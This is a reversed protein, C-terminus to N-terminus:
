HPPPSPVLIWCRISITQRPIAGDTAEVSFAWTGYQTPTGQVSGSASLSLGPPLSGSVLSFSYSPLGGTVDITESYPSGVFGYPLSLGYSGMPTAVDMPAYVDITFPDSFIKTPTSSDMVQLRFGYSGITTPTGALVGTAPDLSLGPPLAGSQVSWAYPNTGGAGAVTVSYPIGTVGDAFATTAILADSAPAIMMDYQLSAMEFASSSDTVQLTFTYSGNATPTGTIAGTAPDLALGPPLSGTSVSWTYPTAGGNAAVTYGYPNGVVGRPVSVTTISLPATFVDLTFVRQYTDAPISSDTVQIVFSYTGTTTAIGSLTGTADLSLGPPLAGAAVTWVYPSTGGDASFTASFASGVAPGPLSGRTIRLGVDFPYVRILAGTLTATQVPSSSDTVQFSAEFFGRVTPIGSLTGDAALTIGPPLFGGILSWSYPPKGGAAALTADYPTGIEADSAWYSDVSLATSDPQTTMSLTKTAIQPSDASDTAAVTFVYTSAATPTGAITGTAADLTLGPPLSSGGSLSWSVPSTGGSSALQASYAAGVTGSPLSTTVITLGTVTGPAPSSGSACATLALVILCYATPSCRSHGLSLLAVRSAVGSRM